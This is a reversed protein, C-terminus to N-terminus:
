DTLSIPPLALVPDRPDGFGIALVDGDMRVFPMPMPDPATAPWPETLEEAICDQLQDVVNELMERLPRRTPRSLDAYMASRGAAERLDITSGVATLQITQPIHPALRTAVAAALAAYNVQPDSM